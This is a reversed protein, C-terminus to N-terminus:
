NRDDDSQYCGPYNGTASEFAVSTNVFVLICVRIGAVVSGAGNFTASVDFPSRRRM